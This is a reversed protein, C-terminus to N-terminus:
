NNPHQQTQQQTIVSYTVLLEAPNHRLQESLVSLQEPTTSPDLSIFYATTATQLERKHEADAKAEQRAFKANQYNTIAQLLLPICTVLLNIFLIIYYVIILSQTVHVFPTILPLYYILSAFPPPRHKSTPM